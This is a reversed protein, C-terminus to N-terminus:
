IKEEIKSNQNKSYYIFMQSQYDKLIAQKKEGISVYQNTELTFITMPLM